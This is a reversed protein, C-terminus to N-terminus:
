IIKKINALTDLIKQKRHERGPGDPLYSPIGVCIKCAM